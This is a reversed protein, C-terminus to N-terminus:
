PANVVEGGARTAMARWQTQTITNSVFRVSGDAMAANVGQAHNSRAAVHSGAASPTFWANNGLTACPAKYMGDGQQQPCPGIPRDAASSNPTLYASFIAGGMNGYITSGIPGGWGTVNPVLGESIMLTNATGDTIHEFTPGTTPVASGPDVRQGPRASFIGIGGSTPDGAIANGYLDGGGV